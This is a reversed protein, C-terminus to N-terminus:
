SQSMLCPPNHSKRAWSFSPSEPPSRGYEACITKGKQWLEEVFLTATIGTPHFDSLLLLPLNCGSKSITETSSPTCSTTVPLSLM